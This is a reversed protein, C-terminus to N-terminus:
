LARLGGATKVLHELISFSMTSITFGGNVVAQAGPESIGDGFGLGAMDKLVLNNVVGWRAQRFVTHVSGCRTGDDHLGRIVRSPLRM